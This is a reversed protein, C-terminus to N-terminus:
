KFSRFGADIIRSLQVFLIQCAKKKYSRVKKKTFFNLFFFVIDTYNERKTSFKKVRGTVAHDACRHYSYFKGFYQRDCLETLHIRSARRHAYPCFCAAENGLIPFWARIYPKSSYFLLTHLSISNKFFTCIKM